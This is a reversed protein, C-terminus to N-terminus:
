EEINMQEEPDLLKLDVPRFDETIIKHRYAWEKWNSAM